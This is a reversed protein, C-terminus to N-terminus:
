IKLQFSTETQFLLIFTSRTFWFSDRPRGSVLDRKYIEDFHSKAEHFVEVLSVFAMVGSASALCFCSTQRMHQKPIPFYVTMAGLFTMMGAMTSLVFGYLPKSGSSSACDDESAAASTSFSSLVFISLVAAGVLIFFSSSKTM